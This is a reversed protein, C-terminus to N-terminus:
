WYVKKHGFRIELVNISPNGIYVVPLSRRELEARYAKSDLGSLLVGNATNLIFWTTAPTGYCGFVYGGQVVFDLVDAQVMRGGSNLIRSRDTHPSIGQSELTYGGPLPVELRLLNYGALIAVAAAIIVLLSLVVSRTRTQLRTPPYREPTALPQKTRYKDVVAYWYLPALLFGFIFLVLTWWLKDDDTLHKSRWLDLLLVVVGAAVYLYVAQAFPVPLSLDKGPLLIDCVLGALMCLPYLICISLLYYKM